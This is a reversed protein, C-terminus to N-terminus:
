QQAKVNHGSNMLDAVHQRYLADFREGDPSDFGFRSKCYCATAQFVLAGGEAIYAPDVGVRAMDAAAADILSQVEGDFADGSLRLVTKMDELAVAM